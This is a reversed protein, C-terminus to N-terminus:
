QTELVCANPIPQKRSTYMYQLTEVIEGCKEDDHVNKALNCAGGLGEIESSAACCAQLTKCQPSECGSALGVFLVLIFHRM